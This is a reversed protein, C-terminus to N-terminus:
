QQIQKYEFIYRNDAGQEFNYILKIWIVGLAQNNKGVIIINGEEVDFLFDSKLGSDYVNQISTSTAALYDFDNFRVFSVGTHSGWTKSLLRNADLPDCTDYIDVNTIGSVNALMELNFGDFAQGCGFMTLHEHHVIAYNVVPPPPPSDTVVNVLTKYFATSVNSQLFAKFTLEINTPFNYQSVVYHFDFESVKRNLLTDLVLMYGRQLDNSTITVNKVVDNVASSRIRFLISDGFTRDTLTDNTAVLISVRPTTERNCHCFLFIM